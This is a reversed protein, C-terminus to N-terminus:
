ACLAGVDACITPQDFECVYGCLVCVLHSLLRFQRLLHVLM